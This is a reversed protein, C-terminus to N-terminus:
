RVGLLLEVTLQDLLELRSGRRGLADIDFSHAKLAAAQPGSYPALYGAVQDRDALLDAILGQIEADANFRAVKEQLILYTRMCGRCFDWVGDRDETRYAHADFHKMGAYGRDELLKVLFFSSKLNAAGFRFDQDYRGPEQDNLDIHFLKGADMAQAVAHPFNLGAMTEHAVEPNVGCQTPDDLTAIFGLMAGTTPLFIHGRPENPKAELAFKIDYGQDKAYAILYNFADRYRKISDVPDKGADVESGERGGWFVYIKAGLQVGLDIGLMAKQLAYARVSPVPSTFAGDKFVPHSFLNTTAMPVCLGADALAQAYRRAIADREAATADIPVLDNDHLNVGYAGLEALKAAAACHFDLDPLPRVPDGFPDRGANAYTWMGFTFHHEPRPVYM